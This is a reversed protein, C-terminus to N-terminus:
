ANGAVASGPAMAPAPAAGEAVAGMKKLLEPDVQRAVIPHIRVDGEKVVQKFNALVAVARRRARVRYELAAHAPGM